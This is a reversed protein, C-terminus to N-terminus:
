ERGEEENQELLTEFNLMESPNYSILESGSFLESSGSPWEDDDGAPPPLGSETSHAFLDLLTNADLTYGSEYLMDKISELEDQTANLHIGLDDATNIINLYDNPSNRMAVTMDPTSNAEPQEMTLFQNVDISPVSSEPSEASKPSTKVPKPKPASPSAVSATPVSKRSASAVPTKLFSQEVNLIKGDPGLVIQPTNVEELANVISDINNKNNAITTQLEPLINNSDLLEDVAPERVDLEEEPINIINDLIESSDALPSNPSTVTPLDALIYEESPAAESDLEHIIAGDSSSSQNVKIAKSQPGDNIMLPFRRKVGITTRSPQVLSVLFHILQLLVPGNLLSKERVTLSVIRAYIGEDSGGDNGHSPM